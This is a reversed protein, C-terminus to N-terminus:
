IPLLSVKNHFNDIGQFITNHIEEMNMSLESISQLQNQNAEDKESKWFREQRKGMEKEKKKRRM